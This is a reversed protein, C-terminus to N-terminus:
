RRGGHATRTTESAAASPDYVLFLLGGWVAVAFLPYAGMMAVVIGLGPVGAALDAVPATVVRSLTAAHKVGDGAATTTVISLSALWHVLSIATGVAVPLAVIARGGRAM